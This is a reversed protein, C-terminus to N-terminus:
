SDEAPGIKEIGPPNWNGNLAAEGPLYLRLTVAFKGAPTPLWNAATEGPNRHQLYIDLSGDPNYVMNDRDGLLYRDIPNAVLFGLEDYMTLSWFADAPPIQDAEFHLRYRYSGALGQGERDVEALPYIAEEPTLAGLGILAVFARTLYDTGYVGISDRAISWGSLGARDESMAARLKNRVITLAENMAFETLVGPDFMLGPGIDLRAIEGLLPEDVAAPAQDRMLHNLATFFTRADMADVTELVSLREEDSADERDVTGSAAREGQLWRPLPTISFGQQLAAISPIDSTGNIQIRGIIWVMNTPAKIVPLGEPEDGQWNPGVLAYDGADNGTTRTGVSAFVNTWADYFPIVYYRDEMAPVTVVQPTDSLDLWALSYLTDNNPRVVKRDEPGPLSLSHSFSNTGVGMERVMEQHTQDMIVLPYGYLYADATTAVIGVVRVVAVGVLLLAVVAFVLKKM